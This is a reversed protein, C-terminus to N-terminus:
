RKLFDIETEPIFVTQVTGWTWLIRDSPSACHPCCMIGIHSEVYTIQDCKQCIGQVLGTAIFNAKGGNGDSVEISDPIGKIHSKRTKRGTM